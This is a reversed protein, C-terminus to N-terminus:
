YKLYRSFSTLLIGVRLMNILLLLDQLASKEKFSGKTSLDVMIGITKRNDEEAMRQGRDVDEQMRPIREAGGAM